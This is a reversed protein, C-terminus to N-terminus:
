YTQGNTSLYYETYRKFAKERDTYALRLLELWDDDRLEKKAVISEDASIPQYCSFM